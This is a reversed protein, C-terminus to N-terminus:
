VCPMEADLGRGSKRGLKRAVEGGIHQPCHEPKTGYTTTLGASDTEPRGVANRRRGGTITYGAPRTGIGSLRCSVALHRFPACM